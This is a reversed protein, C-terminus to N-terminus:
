GLDAVNGHDLLQEVHQARAVLVAVAAIGADHLRAKAVAVVRRDRHDLEDLTVDIGLAQIGARHLLRPGVGVGGGRHSRPRSASVFSPGCPGKKITGTAPATGQRPAEGFRTAQALTAGPRADAETRLVCLCCSLCMIRCTAIPIRASADLTAAACACDPAVTSRPLYRTSVTIVQWLQWVGRPGFPRISSLASDPPMRKSSGGKSTVADFMVESLSLPIPAQLSAAMLFSSVVAPRGFPTGTATMM